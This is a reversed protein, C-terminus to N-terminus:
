HEQGAHAPAAVRSAGAVARDLLGALDAALASRTYRGRESEDPEYPVREGCEWRALQLELWEAIAEPSGLVVGTQTRTVLEDLQAGDGPVCIIPREAGFYEFVKGPYIGRQLYRDRAPDPAISFLLLVDADRLLQLAAERPVYPEVDLVDTVGAAAAMARVRDHALGRYAFRVQAFRSPGVRGRLRALGAFFVDPRMEAWINGANAITFHTRRGSGPPFESAEFGNPITMVPRGFEEADLASWYPTVNVITSATSLVRRAIPAYLRRMIPSFPQLIPDRFDAIWPVGYRDSFWRALLLGADPSHEGLVADIRVAEAVCAAARRAVPQWAQSYDGTRLKAATLPKRLVDRVRNRTGDRPLLARWARDLAGDYPLSHTPIVVSEDPLTGALARQVRADVPEAPAVGREDRHCCLVIARWGRAPLHRAFQAPRQAGVTSERRHYPACEHAFILVTRM